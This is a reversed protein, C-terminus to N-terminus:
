KLTINLYFYSTGLYKLIKTMHNLHDAADTLTEKM